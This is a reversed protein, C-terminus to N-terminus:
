DNIIDDFSCSLASFASDAGMASPSIPSEDVLNFVGIQKIFNVECRFEKKICLFKLLYYTRLLFPLSSMVHLGQTLTIGNLNMFNCSSCSLSTELSVIINTIKFNSVWNNEKEYSKQSGSNKLLFKNIERIM